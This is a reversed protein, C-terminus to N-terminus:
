EGGINQILINSHALIFDEESKKVQLVQKVPDKDLTAAHNVIKNMMDNGRPGVFLEKLVERPALRSFVFSQQETLLYAYERLDDIAFKRRNYNKQFLKALDEKKLVKPTRTQM